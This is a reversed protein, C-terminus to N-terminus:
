LADFVHRRSRLGNAARPPSGGLLAHASRPPSGGSSSSPFRASACAMPRGDAITVRSSAGRATAYMSGGRAASSAQRRHLAQREDHDLPANSEDQQAQKKMLSYMPKHQVAYPTLALALWVILVGGVLEFLSLYVNGVM